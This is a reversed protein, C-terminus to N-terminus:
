DNKRDKDQRQIDIGLFTGLDSQQFVVTASIPIGIGSGQGVQDGEAVL